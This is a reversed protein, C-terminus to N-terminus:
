SGMGHCRKEVTVFDISDADVIGAARPTIPPSGCEDTSDFGDLAAKKM